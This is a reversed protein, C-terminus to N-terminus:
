ESPGRRHIRTAGGQDSPMVHIMDLNVHAPQRLAWLIQASIDTARLERMGEYVSAARDMDGHFRVESFETGEGVFGPAITTCRIGRSYTEYRLVKMFAHLAHKSAVYVSGGEYAELGAISGTSVIHGGEAMHPVAANAMMFAGMCNADIMEKWDNLDAQGVPEKGRALGANNILFSLDDFCGRATLEDYLAADTVDGAVSVVNVDVRAQIEQELEQLRDARRSILVLNCGASALACATARGIGSSAGTVIAKRGAISAVEAAAFLSDFSQVPM